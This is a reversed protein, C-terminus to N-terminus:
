ARVLERERETVREPERVEETTEFERELLELDDRREERETEQRKEYREWCM